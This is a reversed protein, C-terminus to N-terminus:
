VAPSLNKEAQRKRAIYQIVAKGVDTTCYRIGRRATPDVQAILKRQQLTGNEPHNVNKGYMRRRFNYDKVGTRKCVEHSQAGYNSFIDALIHRSDDDLSSWVNQLQADTYAEVAVPAPQAIVAERQAAAEERLATQRAAAEERLTQGEPDYAAYEPEPEPSVSEPEPTVSPSPASAFDKLTVETQLAAETMTTAPETGPRHYGRQRLIDELREIEALTAIVIPDNSMASM